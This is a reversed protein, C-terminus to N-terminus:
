KLTFVIPVQMHTHVDHGGKRGPKFKWKGVAAVAPAEFDFKTSKAAYANVVNGTDDVIFDVLVEGGINMRRMALPYQPRAQVKPVPVQDLKSIDYVPAGRLTADGAAPNVAVAQALQALAPRPDPASSSESAPAGPAAAPALAVIEGTPLMRQNSAQLSRNVVELSILNQQRASEEAARKQQLAADREAAM